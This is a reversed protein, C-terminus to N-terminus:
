WPKYSAELAADMSASLRKANECAVSFAREDLSACANKYAQNFEGLEYSAGILADSLKRARDKAADEAAIAATNIISQAIQQQRNM